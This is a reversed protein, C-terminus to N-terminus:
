SPVLKTLIRQRQATGGRAFLAALQDPASRTDHFIRPASLVGARPSAIPLYRRLQSDGEAIKKAEAQIKPHDTLGIPAGTRAMIAADRAIADANAWEEALRAAGTFLTWIQRTVSLPADFLLAGNAICLLKDEREHPLKPERRFAVHAAGVQLSTEGAPPPERLQAGMLTGLERAARWGLELARRGDVVVVVGDKEQLAVFQSM